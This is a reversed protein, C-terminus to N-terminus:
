SAARGELYDREMEVLHHVVQTALDRSARLGRLDTRPEVLRTVITFTDGRAPINSWTRQADGRLYVCLVRCGEVEKILRGVGDAVVEPDVRGSRSRGSEPFMLVTEGSRLLHALRELVHAVEQRDGGRPVPVCKMVYALVRWLWWSEVRRQLPVNWPLGRYRVVHGIASGLGWGIVASDVMTLHNAVVLLPRREELLQAYEKRCHGADRVRWRLVFRMLLVVLPLWLPAALRGALRQAELAKRSWGRAGPNGQILRVADGVTEVKDADDDAVEIGFADEFALVVDVLRASNVKLGSLINTELSVSALAGADKAYPKLIDVVKEFIKEETM